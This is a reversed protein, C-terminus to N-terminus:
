FMPPLGRLRRGLSLQGLHVGFHGTMMLTLLDGITAIPTGEFVAIPNPQAFIAPDAARVSATVQEFGREIASLLETKTPHPLPIDAASTGRTFCRHWEASCVRPQGLMKLAGDNAVALHGLIWLPSNLGPAPEAALQDDALDALLRRLYTMNFAYINLQTKLM